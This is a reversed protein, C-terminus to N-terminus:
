TKKKSKKGTTKIVIPTSEFKGRINENYFEEKSRAELWAQMIDPPVNNVLRESGKKFTIIAQKNNPDYNVNQLFKENGVPMHIAQKGGSAISPHTIVLAM